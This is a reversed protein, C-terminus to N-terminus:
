TCPDTVSDQSFLLLIEAEIFLPSNEVIEAVILKM